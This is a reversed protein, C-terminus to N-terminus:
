FQATQESRLLMLSFLCSAKFTAGLAEGKGARPNRVMFDKNLVHDPELIGAKTLADFYRRINKAAMGTLRSYWKVLTDVGVLFGCQQDRFKLLFQAFRKPEVRLNGLKRTRRMMADPRISTVGRKSAEEANLIEGTALDLYETVYLKSGRRNCSLVALSSLQNEATGDYDQPWSDSM